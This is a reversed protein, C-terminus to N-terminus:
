VTKKVHLSRKMKRLNFLVYPMIKRYNKKISGFRIKKYYWDEFFQLVEWRTMNRLIPTRLDGAWHILGADVRKAAIDNLSIQDLKKSKSWIMFVDTGLRIKQQDALAPLLFNYLSQDVVPFLNLNKYYPYSNVDFFNGLIKQDIAGTTVFIQGTNFFYGPYRYEPFTDEVKKTDFYIKKVWEAYPDKENEISVVYENSDIKKLLREIFPGIFVIDADLMLVKKGAPMKHLYLLKAAGWGMKEVGLDVNVVNFHREVEHTDFRGKGIDKVLEIRIHPYYYRISAVCIRALYYDEKNCCVVVSLDELKM